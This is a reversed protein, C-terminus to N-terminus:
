RVQGLRNGGSLILNWPHVERRQEPWLKRLLLYFLSHAELEHHTTMKMRAMPNLALVAVVVWSSAPSHVLPPAVLLPGGHGLLAPGLERAPELGLGLEPGLEPGLLPESHTTGAEAKFGVRGM